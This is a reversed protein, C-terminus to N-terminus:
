HVIVTGKMEPHFTCYYSFAGPRSFTHNWSAGADITGSNIEQAGVSTVNHPTLDANAWEVTEGSKVEVKEPSFKLLKISIRAPTANTASGAPASAASSAGNAASSAPTTPAASRMNTTETVNEMQRGDFFGVAFIVIAWFVLTKMSVPGSIIWIERRARDEARM